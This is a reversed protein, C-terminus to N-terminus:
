KSNETIFNNLTNLFIKYDSIFTSLLANCNECFLTHNHKTLWNEINQGLNNCDQVAIGLNYKEVYDGQTSDSTVIMPKKYILANYFRNSIATAHTKIKPYFINIFSCKNIYEGEKDKPYYGEFYVNHIKNNNVYKKILPAAKGKGVFYMNYLPKNALASVVEINSQYDRIGGITLINIYKYDETTKIPANITQQVLDIDFNHSIIYKYKKPLYKTFGPSSIINAFSNNLVAEFIPMLYRKQEISLDRYDLIYNNKYRNKLIPHILISLQSSFVILKDFNYKKITRKIFSIYLLYEKLKGLTGNPQKASTYQIGYPKDSGDRNWSIVEYNVGLKDLANTYITVYPSFWLNGPVILAIKM